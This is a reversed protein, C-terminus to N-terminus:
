LLEEKSSHVHALSASFYYLLLVESLLRRVMKGANVNHSTYLRLLYSPPFKIIILLCMQYNYKQRKSMILPKHTIVNINDIIITIITIILHKSKSDLVISSSQSTIDQLPWTLFCTNRVRGRWSVQPEPNLVSWPSLPFLFKHKLVVTVYSNSVLMSLPRCVRFFM